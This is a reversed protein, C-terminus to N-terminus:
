YRLDSNPMWMMLSWSNLKWMAHGQGLKWVACGTIHILLQVQCQLPHLGPLHLKIMQVSASVGQCLTRLRFQLLCCTTEGCRMKCFPQPDYYLTTWRGVDVLTTCRFGDGCRMKCSPSTASRLVINDMEGCGGIYHMTIWRLVGGWIWGTTCWSQWGQANAM